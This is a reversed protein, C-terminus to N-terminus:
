EATDSEKHGWPCYGTLSREEHFEGPLFVPIPQWEEGTARGLGPILGLDGASFTSEKGDSGGSPFGWDRCFCQVFSM